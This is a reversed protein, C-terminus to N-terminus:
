IGECVERLFQVQKQREAKRSVSVAAYAAYAAAAAAYAAYDAYDADDAAAAYAAYDAAAAYADKRALELEDVTVLGNAFKEAVDLAHLSRSDKMLHQISRACKVAFMRKEKDYGEVARFCWIADELGNSDLITLISMPADDAKTKNLYSLLKTWGETCPSHLRIQNLTTQM